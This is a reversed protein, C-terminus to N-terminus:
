DVVVMKKLLDVILISVKPSLLLMAARCSGRALRPWDATVLLRSPSLFM